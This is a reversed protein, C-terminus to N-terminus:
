KLNEQHVASSSRIRKEVDPYLKLTQNKRDKRLVVEASTIKVVEAGHFRGGLPIEKGDIVASRGRASIKIAQLTAPANPDAPASAQGQVPTLLSAPPRTPDPLSSEAALGTLPASLMALVLCRLSLSKMTMPKVM